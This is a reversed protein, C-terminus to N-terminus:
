KADNGSGASKTLSSGKDLQSARTMLVISLSQLAQSTPLHPCKRALAVCQHAVDRLYSADVLM